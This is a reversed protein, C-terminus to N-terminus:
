SPTGLMLAVHRDVSTRGSLAQARARGAAPDQPRDLAEEIATALAAPDDCPVLHGYVGDDLIERPGSKCDSSVVPLGAHLAEVLVNPLGEYDSSLAFVDASALWPWPDLDYGAFIVADAIGLEDALRELAPRLVGDGVIALQAPRHARVLAFAHLLLAHNKQAKLVGLTVIRAAGENGWDKASRDRILGAPLDLPNHVVEIARRPLGSVAALDDAASASVLVRADALPYLLRVSWQIARMTRASGGYQKSLAIHDSLVIRTPVRSVLRALVAIVTLPWMMAHLAHPRRLRLYRVLPLLARRLTAAGLDVIKVEPPVLPLLVGRASVLVLDVPHGRAIFDRMLALAVREAGGGSMDPLLLTLRRTERTM